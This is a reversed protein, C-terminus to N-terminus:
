YSHAYVAGHKCLCPPLLRRRVGSWELGVGVLKAEPTNAGRKRGRGPGRVKWLLMWAVGFLLELRKWPGLAGWLGMLTDAVPRDAAVCMSLWSQQQRQQQQRQQQGAAAADDEAAGAAAAAAAQQDQLMQILASRAAIFELGASVHLQDAGSLLPVIM